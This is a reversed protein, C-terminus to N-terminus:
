LAALVDSRSQDQRNPSINSRRAYISPSRKPIRGQRQVILGQSTADGPFFDAAAENGGRVRTGYDLLFRRILVWAAQDCAKSAVDGGQNTAVVVAFNRQPAMWVLAYNMSNSGAHTLVRGGGWNRETVIWGPAYSGEFVPTHLIRYTKPQLLSQEGREGKLHEAIFKAWDGIACHVANAPGIVPPNDSLRGPPIGRRKGRVVRHQWPQDIKGASGMAGFGASKMGLPHFLMQRMLQEWETDTVREAIAGAIAFGANSYIYRTGPTAEPPQRLMMRVYAIRQERPSGPLRHMDWFTKGKPWSREAPPLGARHALLHKLTVNRYASLINGALDPFVGALTTNWRLKGQEILIAILTATMAKTCSGLHFVDNQTVKVNSGAKRVGVTALAVTHGEFIVAAAMAPLDHKKRIQNVAPGIDELSSSRPRNGVTPAPEAEATDRVTRYDAVSFAVTLLGVVSVIVQRGM